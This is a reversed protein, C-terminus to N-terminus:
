DNNVHWGRQLAETIRSELEETAYDIQRQKEEDSFGGKTTTTSMSMKYLHRVQARLQQIERSLEVRSIDAPPLYLSHPLDKASLEGSFWLLLEVNTHLSWAAPWWRSQGDPLDGYILEVPAVGLALALIEVEDLEVKGRRANTEIKTLAPQRILYGLEGTKESLQGLTLRRQDRLRRVARGFREARESRWAVM